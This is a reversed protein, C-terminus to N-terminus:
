DLWFLKGLKQLYFLMGAEDTVWFLTGMTMLLWFLMRQKMLLWFLVPLGKKLLGVTHTLTM